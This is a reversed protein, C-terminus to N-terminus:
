DRSRSPCASRRTTRMAAREVGARRAPREWRHGLRPVAARPHGPVRGVPVALRALGVAVRGRRAGGRGVDRRRRHEGRRRGRARVRVLGPGRARLRRSCHVPEPGFDPVGPPVMLARPRMRDLPRGPDDEDARFTYARAQQYGTFPEDVATIAHLWKVNTMGYWGPVVLRLPAGHQPPLPQGNIEYALVVEERRAEALPLSREFVLEEGDEVGRDLATFVLEVAGEGVGADDLLDHLRIGRWRATGVAESIWPQSFPRPALRAEGNGRM